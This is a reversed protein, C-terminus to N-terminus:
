LPQRAGPLVPRCGGIHVATCRAPAGAELTQMPNRPPQDSWLLKQGRQLVVREMRARLRAQEVAPPGALMTTGKRAFVPALFASATWVKM